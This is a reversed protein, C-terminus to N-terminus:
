YHVYMFHRAQSASFTRHAITGHLNASTESMVFSGDPAISEVVGVHGYVADAHAQGPQFVVIDGVHRVQRDVWYGLARATTAWQRGNGMHSGVPLGLQHRRIYVWWTCQSFEYANGRDGTPHDANFGHPLVAADEFLYREAKTKFHPAASLKDVSITTDSNPVSWVEKTDSSPIPGRESSRSVTSGELPLMQATMTTTTSPESAVHSSKAFALSATATGVLAALSASTLLTTRRQAQRQALRIARRTTPIQHITSALQDDLVVAAGNATEAIMAHSAGRHQGRNKVRLLTFWDPVYTRKPRYGHLAGHSTHSM